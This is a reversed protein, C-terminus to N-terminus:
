RKQITVNSMKCEGKIQVINDDYDTGESRAFETITFSKILLNIEREYLLDNRYGCNKLRNIWNNSRKMM